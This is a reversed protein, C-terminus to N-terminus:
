GATITLYIKCKSQLMYAKTPWAIPWNQLHNAEIVATIYPRTSCVANLHEISDGKV